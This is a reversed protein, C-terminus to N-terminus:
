SYSLVVIDLCLINGFGAFDALAVEIEQFEVQSCSFPQERWYKFLALLVLFPNHKRIAQFQIFMRERINHKIQLYVNQFKCVLM